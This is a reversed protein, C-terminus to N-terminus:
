VVMPLVVVAILCLIFGWLMQKMFRVEQQLRDVSTRLDGDHIGDELTQEDKDYVEVEGQKAWSKPLCWRFYGCGEPNKKLCAFYLRGKTIKLPGVIRLDAKVGCYCNPPPDYLPVTDGDGGRQVQQVFFVVYRYITKYLFSAIDGKDARWEDFIHLVDFATRNNVDLVLDLILRPRENSEMMHVGPPYDYGRMFKIVFLGCDYTDTYDQLPQRELNLVNFKSVDQQYLAGFQRVKRAVNFCAYHSPRHPMSDFLYTKENVLDVKICIWHDNNHNLPLYISKCASLKATFQHDGLYHQCMKDIDRENPPPYQLIKRVLLVPFYWAMHCLDPHKSREANTLQM